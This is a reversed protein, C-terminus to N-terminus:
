NTSKLQTIRLIAADLSFNGPAATSLTVARQYYDLALKSQGLRDLSIALNYAYDANNPATGFARFYSEQAEAWRSQQAYLNGLEFLGPGSQPHQALIQKLQTESQDPDGHQLSVLGAIADPDVPNLDLLKSYYAAAQEPQKQRLAVAAMGLLADRNNPEKQLVSLYSARAASVQGSTVQQYAQTLTVNTQSPRTSKSIKIQEASAVLEAQENQFEAPSRTRTPAQMASPPATDTVSNRQMAASTAAYPDPESDNRAASSPRSNVPRTSGAAADVAAAPSYATTSNAPAATVTAASALRADPTSVVTDGVTAGSSAAAQPTAPRPAAQSVATAVPPVVPATQIKQTTRQYPLADPHQTSQWFYYGAGALLLLAIAAAGLLPTRNSTVPKKASLITQAKQQAQQPGEVTKSNLELATKEPLASQPVLSQLSVPAAAPQSVADPITQRSEVPAPSAPVAPELELAPSVSPSSQTPLSQNRQAAKENAKADLGTDVETSMGAAGDANLGANGIADSEANETTTLNWDLAEGVKPEPKADVKEQPTALQTAQETTIMAAQHLNPYDSAPPAFASSDAPAPQKKAQEAKKLAQMLLSM